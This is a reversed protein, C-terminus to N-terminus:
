AAEDWDIGADLLEDHIREMYESHQAKTMQGKGGKHTPQPAPCEIMQFGIQSALPVLRSGHIYGYKVRLYDHWAVASMSRSYDECIVDYEELLALMKWMRSNQDTTRAQEQKRVVIEVVENHAVGWALWQPLLAGIRAISLENIPIVKEDKM